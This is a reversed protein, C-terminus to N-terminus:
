AVEGELLVADGRLLAPRLVVLPHVVDGVVENGLRAAVERDILWRERDRPGVGPPPHCDLVLDSDIARVLREAARHLGRVAPDRREAVERADLGSRAARGLGACLWRAFAESPRDTPPAHRAWAQLLQDGAPLELIWAVRSAAICAETWQDLLGHVLPDRSTTRAWAEHLPFGFTDPEDPEPEDPAPRWVRRDASALRVWGVETRAWLERVDDVQELRPRHDADPAAPPPPTVAAKALGWGMAAGAVLALGVWLLTM